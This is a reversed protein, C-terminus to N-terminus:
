RVYGARQRASSWTAERDADMDDLVARTALVAMQMQDLVAMGATKMAEKRM